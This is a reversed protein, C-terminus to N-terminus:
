KEYFWQVEHEKLNTQKVTVENSTDSLVTTTWNFQFM